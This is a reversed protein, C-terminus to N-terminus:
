VDKVILTFKDVGSQLTMFKYFTSRSLGIMQTGNAEQTYKGLLVCGDSDKNYNGVHFLIQSHGPVGTIEFTAFPIPSSHLRHEGRICQYQGAPLKSAYSGDGHGSDYAHELTVAIQNMQADYLEGFVGDDRKQTRILVLDM